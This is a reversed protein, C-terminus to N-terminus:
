RKNGAPSSLSGELEKIRDRLEAALEFDLAAAAELMRRELDQVKERTAFNAEGERVVERVVKAARIEEEIGPLIDKKIGAPVIGHERNFATQV